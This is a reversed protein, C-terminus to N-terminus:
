FATNSALLLRPALELNWCSCLFLCKTHPDEVITKRILDYVNSQTAHSNSQSFQMSITAFRTISTCERQYPSCTCFGPNAASHHFLM